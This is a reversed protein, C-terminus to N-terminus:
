QRSQLKKLYEDSLNDLKPPPQMIESLTLGMYKCLAEIDELRFDSKMSVFDHILSKSLGSEKGMNLFSIDKLKKFRLINEIINKRTPTLEKVRKQGPM